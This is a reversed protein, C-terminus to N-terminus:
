RRGRGGGGGGGGGGGRRGGGGGGSKGFYADAGIYGVSTQLPDPQKPAGKKQGGGVPAHGHDQDPRGFGATIRKSGKAFRRDFTQELPNPIYGIHDIDDEM